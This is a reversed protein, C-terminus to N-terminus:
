ASTPHDGEEPTSAERLRDLIARLDRTRDSWDFIRQEAWGPVPGDDDALAAAVAAPFESAPAVRVRPDSSDRFGAVATSVVPRGVAAYEYLKIPDLSDTFPTVVHPVVLVDAHQLYAVVDEHARAGLMLVGADRLRESDATRLANPGVMVLRGRDTLASATRVCLEVDLRDTHLTGVYVAAAPPLDVPRPRPSRYAAIDVANPILEITGLRQAHKRRVLEPSCAVVAAARRLLAAEGRALRDLERQPRDASLWDDTIDYLTPWGTSDMLVALGPDNLWLVPSTFGIRRTARAITHALRDDAHPDIRRPLAKVPRSAWLRGTDGIPRPRHGRSPARRTVVDHLPDAAPEVFLVRLESDSRLLGDVLYQNRRWVDDWRELSVVVLDTM